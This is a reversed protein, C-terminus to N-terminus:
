KQMEAKCAAINARTTELGRADNIAAQESALSELAELADTFRREQMLVFALNGLAMLATQSAGVKLALDRAAEAKSRALEYEGAMTLLIAMENWVEARLADNAGGALRADASEFLIMQQMKDSSLAALTRLFRGAMADDQLTMGALQMMAGATQGDGHPSKASFAVLFVVDDDGVALDAAIQHAEGMGIAGRGAREALHYLGAPGGSSAAAGAHATPRASRAEEDGWGFLDNVSTALESVDAPLSASGALRGADRYKRWAALPEDLRPDTRARLTEVDIM